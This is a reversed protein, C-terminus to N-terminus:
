RWGWTMGNQRCYLCLTHTCGDPFETADDAENQEIANFKGTAELERVLEESIVMDRKMSIGCKPHAQAADALTPLGPEDVTESPADVAGTSCEKMITHRGLGAEEDKLAQARAPTMKSMSTNSEMADQRLSDVTDRLLAIKM